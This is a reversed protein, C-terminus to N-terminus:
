TTNLVIRINFCVTIFSSSHLVACGGCSTRMKPLIDAYFEIEREFLRMKSWWSAKSEMPMKLKFCVTKKEPGYVVQVSRICSTYGDGMKSGDSFSVAHISVDDDGCFNRVATELALSIDSDFAM